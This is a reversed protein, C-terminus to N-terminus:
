GGITPKSARGTPGDPYQVARLARLSSRFWCALTGSRLRHRAPCFGAKEVTLTYTGAPLQVLSYNGTGTSVTEFKAGTVLDSLV